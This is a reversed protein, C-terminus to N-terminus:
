CSRESSSCGGDKGDDRLKDRRYVLKLKSWFEEIPNSFPSYPPLIVINYGGAICLEQVAPGYHIRCNDMVLNIGKWSQGLCDLQDLLAELFRYFHLSTTGGPIDIPKKPLPKDKSPQPGRATLSLVGFHTIAGMITINFEKSSAPNKIPKGRLSWGYLPAM